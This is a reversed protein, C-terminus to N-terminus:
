LIAIATVSTLDSTPDFSGYKAPSVVNASTHVEPNQFCQEGEKFDLSMEPQFSPSARGGSSRKGERSM